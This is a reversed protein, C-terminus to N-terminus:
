LEKVLLKRFKIPGQNFQLGIRGQASGTHHTSVTVEGNFVVTIEPGKAYIEFTNWKGGAKYIPKVQAVNVLSGTSYVPNPNKDWIQVEYAGSATNVQKPNPARIYVGSNTDESAWFEVYLEFDKFSKKSVLISAGKTTSKDAQIAGGEARWNGGGTVDFNEMGKDGDILAVWGHSPLHHGCGSLVLTAVLWVIVHTLQRKMSGGQRRGAIPRHRWAAIIRNRRETAASHTLCKVGRQLSFALDPLLSNLLARAISRAHHIASPM